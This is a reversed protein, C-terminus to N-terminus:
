EEIAETVSSVARGPQAGEKCFSEGASGNDISLIYVFCDWWSFIRAM